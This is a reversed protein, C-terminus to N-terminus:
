GGPLKRMSMGNSASDVGPTTTIISPNHLTFFGIVEDLISGTVKQSASYHRPWSRLLIRGKGIPILSTEENKMEAYRTKV